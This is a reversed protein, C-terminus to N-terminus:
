QQSQQMFQLVDDGNKNGNDPLKFSGAGSYVAGDNWSGAVQQQHQQQQQSYMRQTMHMDMPSFSNSLTAENSNKMPMSSFPSNAMQHQPQSPMSIPYSTTVSPPSSGQHHLPQHFSGSSAQNSQYSGYTTQNNGMHQQQHQQQQQPKNLDQL